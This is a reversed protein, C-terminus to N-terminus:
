RSDQTDRRGEYERLPRLDDFCIVGDDKCGPFVYLLLYSLLLVSRYLHRRFTVTTTPGLQFTM